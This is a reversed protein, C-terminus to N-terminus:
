LKNADLRFAVSLSAWITKSFKDKDADLDFAASSGVESWALLFKAAHVWKQKTNADAEAYPPLSALSQALNELVQPKRVSSIGMALPRPDTGVLISLALSDHQVVRRVMPSANSHKSERVAPQSEAAEFAKATAASSSALQAEYEDQARGYAAAALTLVEEPRRMIDAARNMCFKVKQPLERIDGGAEKLVFAVVSVLEGARASGLVQGAATPKALQDILATAHQWKRYDGVLVCEVKTPAAGVISDFMAAHGAECGRSELEKRTLVEFQRAAHAKHRKAAPTVPDGAKEKVKWKGLWGTSSLRIQHADPISKSKGDGAVLPKLHSLNAVSSHSVRAAFM